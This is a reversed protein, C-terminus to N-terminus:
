VEAEALPTVCTPALSTPRFERDVLEEGMQFRHLLDEPEEQVVVEVVPGTTVLGTLAQVGLM